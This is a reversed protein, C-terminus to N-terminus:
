FEKGEILFDSFNVGMVRIGTRTVGSPHWRMLKKLQKLAFNSFTVRIVIGM